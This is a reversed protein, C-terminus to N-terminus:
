FYLLASESLIEFELISDKSGQVRTECSYVAETYAVDELTVNGEADTVLLMLACATAELFSCALPQVVFGMRIALGVLTVSGM